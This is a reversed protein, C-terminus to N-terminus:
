APCLWFWSGHDHTAVVPRERCARGMSLEARYRPTHPAAHAWWSADCGIWPGGRLVPSSCPCVAPEAVVAAARLNSGVRQSLVALFLPNPVSNRLLEPSLRCSHAPHSAASGAPLGRDLAAGKPSSM